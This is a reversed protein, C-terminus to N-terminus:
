TLRALHRYGEARDFDDDPSKDRITQGAEKLRDCFDDWAAGSALRDLHTNNAM